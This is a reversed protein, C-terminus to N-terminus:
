VPVGRGRLELQLAYRESHTDRSGQKKPNKAWAEHHVDKLQETLDNFRRLLELTEVETLDEYESEDVEDFIGELQGFLDEEEPTM